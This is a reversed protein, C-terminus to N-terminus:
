AGVRNGQGSALSPGAGDPRGFSRFGGYAPGWGKARRRRRWFAGRGATDDPAADDLRYSIVEQGVLTRTGLVNVLDTDILPLNLAGHLAQRPLNRHSIQRARDVGDGIDASRVSGM